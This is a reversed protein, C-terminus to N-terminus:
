KTQQEIEADPVKCSAYEVRAGRISTSQLRWTLRKTGSKSYVRRATGIRHSHGRTPNEEDASDLIKLRRALASLRISRYDASYFLRSLTNSNSNATLASRRSRGHM